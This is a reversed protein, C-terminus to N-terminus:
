SLAHRLQALFVDTDAFCDPYARKLEVISNAYVSEPGGIQALKSCQRLIRRHLMFANIPPDSALQSNIRGEHTLYRISRSMRLRHTLGKFRFESLEVVEAWPKSRLQRERWPGLPAAV